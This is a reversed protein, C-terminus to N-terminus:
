NLGEFILEKGRTFYFVNQLYHVGTLEIQHVYEIWKGNTLNIQMGNLNYSNEGIKRAGANILLEETIPIPEAFDSYETLGHVETEGLFVRQGFKVINPRSEVEFFDIRIIKGGRDKVLNGVRLDTAKIM